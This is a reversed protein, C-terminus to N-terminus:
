LSGFGFIIEFLDRWGRRVNVKVGSYEAALWELYKVDLSSFPGLEFSLVDKPTLTILNDRTQLDTESPSAGGTTQSSISKLGRQKLLDELVSLQFATHAHFTQLLALTTSVQSMRRRALDESNVEIEPGPSTLEVDGSGESLGRDMAFGPVTSPSSPIGVVTAKGSSWSMASARRTSKSTLGGLSDFPRGEIGMGLNRMYTRQSNNSSAKGGGATGSRNTAGHEPENLMNSLSLDDDGELRVSGWNEPGHVTSYSARSNGRWSGIWLGACIICVDEYVRWADTWM